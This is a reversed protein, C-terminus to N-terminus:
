MSRTYQLSPPLTEIISDALGTGAAHYINYVNHVGMELLADQEDHYRVVASIKGKYHSQSILEATSLNGHHSPMALVILHVSDVPLLKDWFDTDTGDGLIAKRGDNTHRDIISSKHDVGLVVDGYQEKFADYAASGIRGMGFIIIKPTGLDIPQDEPHLPTREVNTLRLQLWHYLPQAYKVLPASVLFSLSVMLAIIRLWSDTLAGTALAATMVILGFESFNTLSFSTMMASRLRFRARLLLAVFLGLKLPLLLLLALATYLEDITPFGQLGISLFFAVLFLEKFLFLSKALESSKSHGALLIGMILAGLDPKLGVAEFLAAGPVLTMVLGFLVLMEGHGCRDMVKTLLPRVPILLLLSLAWPSPLVGKSFTLYLVAFLDQMILIGIATRGYLSETDGSQELSKIVFVTSSFSLAFSVLIAQSLDLQPLLGIGAFAMLKILATFLGITILLHGSAGAWIETKLLSRLDLKLGIAFLLLLVGLDAFQTILEAQNTGVAFLAFGAGLYGLLPPLGVTAVLLGFLLPLALTIPEM